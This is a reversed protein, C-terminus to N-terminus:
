SEDGEEVEAGDGDPLQDTFGPISLKARGAQTVGVIGLETDAETHTFLRLKNPAQVIALQFGEEM